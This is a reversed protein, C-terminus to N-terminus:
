KKRAVKLLSDTRNKLIYGSPLLRTGAKYLALIVAFSKDSNDILSQDVKIEDLGKISGSFHPQQNEFVRYTENASLCIYAYYRAAAVPSTVDNIMIDTSYKLARVYDNTTFANNKQSYLGPIFLLFFLYAASRKM